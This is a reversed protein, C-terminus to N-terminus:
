DRDNAPHMARASEPGTRYAAGGTKPLDQALRLVQVPSSSLSMSDAIQTARDQEDPSTAQSRAAVVSAGKLITKEIENTLWRSGAVGTLVAGGLTSLTIGADLTQGTKIAEPTGAIVVNALPGYLAWSVFASVAGVLMNGFFGPRYIRQGNLEISRPMAFGNDSLLANISGGVLGALGILVILNGM